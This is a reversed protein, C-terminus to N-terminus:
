FESWDHVYQPLLGTRTETPPVDEEKMMRQRGVVVYHCRRRICMPIGAGNEMVPFTSRNMCVARPTGAPIKVSGYKVDIVATDEVGLLSTVAEQSWGTFDMDDFCIGCHVGVRFNKLEEKTPVMCWPKDWLHWGLWQVYSTKGVGSCGVLVLAYHQNVAPTKYENLGLKVLFLHTVWKVIVGVCYLSAQKM